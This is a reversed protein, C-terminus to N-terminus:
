CCGLRFGERNMLKSFALSFQFIHLVVVILKFLLYQPLEKLIRFPTAVIGPQVPVHAVAVITERRQFMPELHVTSLRDLNGFHAPPVQRPQQQFEIADIIYAMRTKLAQDPLVTDTVAVKKIAFVLCLCEYPAPIHVQMSRRETLHVDYRINGVPRCVARELGVRTQGLDVTVVQCESDRFGLLVPHKRQYTNESCNRTHHAQKPLQAPFHEFTLQIKRARRRLCRGARSSATSSHSTQIGAIENAVARNRNAVKEALERIRIQEALPPLPLVCTAVDDQNVKYIGATTKAKREIQDRTARSNWLAAFFRRDIGDSPRVRILTDPFAIPCPDDCVIAGLGVLHISGNGRSVLIDNKHILFPEAESASWAGIKSESLDILGDRLSTLRLVPIGQDATKVSRGNALPEALVQDVTAWCWGEPLRPLSATDPEAPEKYRAKWKDNKPTKGATKFRALEREEWRQRREALIRQLLVPAPEYDRRQAYALAAETPVLRGEVAAKLISARYRRLNRRVRELTAAVNDLRTFYSHVTEVIYRQEDPPPLHIQWESLTRAGLHYIGVGRAARAFEGTLADKYFHLHLFPVLPDPARVRILTNQFCCDPIEDNWIAPKGVESASGSAESLLLDGRRLAYTEFEQPSFDMAKVDHLSIGNWTVNAARM